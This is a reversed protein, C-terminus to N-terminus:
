PFPMPNRPDNRHRRWQERFWAYQARLTAIHHARWAGVEHWAMICEIRKLQLALIAWCLLVLLGVHQAADLGVTVRAM